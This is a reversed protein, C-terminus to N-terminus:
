SNAAFSLGCDGIGDLYSDISVTFHQKWHPTFKSLDLGWRQGAAVPPPSVPCPRCAVDRKVTTDDDSPSAVTELFFIWSLAKVRLTQVWVCIGSEEGGPEALNLTCPSAM